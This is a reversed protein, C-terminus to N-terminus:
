PRKELVALRALDDDAAFYHGIPAHGQRTLKRREAGAAAFGFSAALLVYLWFGADPGFFRHAAIVPVLGIIFLALMDWHRHVLAHVPPLLAAFPSFREPVAIPLATPDDVSQYLAFLTV